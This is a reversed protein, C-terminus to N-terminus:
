DADRCEEFAATASTLCDLLTKGGFRVDSWGTWDGNCVIARNPDGEPNPCLITVSNGEDAVLKEIMDVTANDRDSM